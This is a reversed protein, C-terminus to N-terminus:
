PDVRPIRKHFHDCYTAESMGAAAILGALLKRSMDQGKHCPVSLHNEVGERELIHHAGKIRDRVWGAHVFAAVHREGGALPLDKLSM